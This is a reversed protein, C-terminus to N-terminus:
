LDPLAMGCEGVEVWESGSPDWADIQLGDTTYPHEAPVTRVEHEPLPTSALLGVMETLHEASLALRKKIRWLDM